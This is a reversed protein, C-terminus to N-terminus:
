SATLGATLCEFNYTHEFVNTPGAIIPNDDQVLKFGTMNAQMVGTKFVYTAPVGVQPFDHMATELSLNKGVPTRFSGTVKIGGINIQDVLGSGNYDSLILNNNWQIRFEKIPYSTGNITFPTNGGDINSIAPSTIGSFDNVLTPTTLGHTTAPITIEGGQWDMSAELLGQSSVSLETTNPKFGLFFVYYDRLEATGTAQKYKLLFQLSEASTGAPTSYNPPETGYKLFPLAFPWLNMNFGYSHFATQQGYLLHSGIQRTDIEVGNIRPRIESVIATATYSPSSTKKTRFVTENTYQFPAGVLGSHSLQWTISSM